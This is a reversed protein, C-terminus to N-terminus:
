KLAHYLLIAASGLLSTFTLVMGSVRLPFIMRPGGIAAAHLLRGLLLTACLAHVVYPRTGEIEVFAALLIAFPVYEAFNAHVRIARLMAADGSDGLSIRLRQRTRITRIAFYVFLIALVAAYVPVIKM